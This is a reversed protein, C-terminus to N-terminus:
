EIGHKRQRMRVYATIHAVDDPSVGAVPKMDGFAWHHARAGNAVALQFSADSHHGPRYIPNLLPPGKDSGMLDVGHCSACNRDFLTKGVIPRPQLGPSPEPIPTGAHALSAGLLAPLLLIRINM